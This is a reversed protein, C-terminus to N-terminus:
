QSSMTVFYQTILDRQADDIGAKQQMLVVQKPWDSASRQGPSPTDHCGGCKKLILDRGATLQALEIHSRDADAQTVAPLPPTCAVLFILLKKM